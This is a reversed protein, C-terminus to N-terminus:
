VNLSAAPPNASPEDNPIRIASKRARNRARPLARSGNAIAAFAIGIMANAGMVFLQNPSRLGNEFIAIAATRQKKGTITFVRRPSVLTSTRDISSIRDYPAPSIAVKRTTRIGLESGNM